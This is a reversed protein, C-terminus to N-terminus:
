KLNFSSIDVSGDNFVTVFSSEPIAQWNERMESLPESVLLKANNPLIINNKSM